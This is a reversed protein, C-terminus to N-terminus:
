DLDGSATLLRQRVDKFRENSKLSAYVRVRRSVEDVYIGPYRSYDGKGFNDGGKLVIPCALKDKGKPNFSILYIWFSYTLESSNLDDKHGATLYDDGNFFASSGPYDVGPGVRLERELISGSGTQDM